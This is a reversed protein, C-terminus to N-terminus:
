RRSAAATVVTQLALEAKAAAPEPLEHLLHRLDGECVLRHRLLLAVFHVDKDRGAVLKSIALDAPSLCYGTVGHTNANCIPVWRSRWNAPLIATEPAVGHAYYGFQEHFPSLEGITGDLLDAKAPADLPYTDAEQSTLLGAPAEPCPGLIAQSGLIVLEKSEVIAGAARILHELDKRRM